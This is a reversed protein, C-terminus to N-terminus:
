QVIPAQAPTKLFDDFTVVAVPYCHTLHKFCLLLLFLPNELAKLLCLSGLLLSALNWLLRFACGQLLATAVAAAIGVRAKSNGETGVVLMTLRGISHTAQVGAAVLPTHSMGEEEEAGMYALHSYVMNHPVSAEKSAKVIVAICDLM